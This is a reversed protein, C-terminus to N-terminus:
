FFVESVPEAKGNFLGTVSEAIIEACSGIPFFDGSRLESILAKQGERIAARIIDVDYSVEHLLSYDTEIPEYNDRRRSKTELVAFEKISLRNTQDNRAIDYRQLMIGGQMLSSMQPSATITVQHRIIIDPSWVQIV